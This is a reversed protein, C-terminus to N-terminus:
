WAPTTRIYECRMNRRGCPDSPARFTASASVFLSFKGQFVPCGDISVHSSLIRAHPHIQDYLFRSLLQPFEPLELKDCATALNWKFGSLSVNLVWVTLPQTFERSKQAFKIHALVDDTITDNIDEDAISAGPNALEIVLTEGKDEDRLLDLSFTQISNLHYDCNYMGTSLISEILTGHLM